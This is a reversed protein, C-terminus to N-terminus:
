TPIPRIEQMGVDRLVFSGVACVLFNYAQEHVRCASSWSTAHLYSFARFRELIEDVIDYPFEVGSCLCTFTPSHARACFGAHSCFDQLICLSAHATARIRRQKSVFARWKKCKHEEIAVSINQHVNYQAHYVHGFLCVLVCVSVCVGM